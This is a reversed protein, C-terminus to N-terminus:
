ESKGLAERLGRAAVRGLLAAVLLAASVVILTSWGPGVLTALTLIMGTVLGIAAAIALAIALAGALLAGRAMQFRKAALARYYDLEAQAYGRADAGLTALLEGLGPQETNSDTM